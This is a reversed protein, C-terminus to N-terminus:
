MQYLAGLMRNRVDANAPNVADGGPRVNVPNAPLREVHFDYFLANPVGQRRYWGLENKPSPHSCDWNPNDVADWFHGKWVLGGEGQMTRWGSAASWRQAHADMMYVLDTTRPPQSASIRLKGPYLSVLFKTGWPVGANKPQYDTIFSGTGLGRPMVFRYSVYDDTGWVDPTLDFPCHWVRSVKFADGDNRLEPVKTKDLYPRLMKDWGLRGENQNNKHFWTARDRVPVHGKWEAAYNAAAMGIQRLNSLCQVNQAAARAKNLAPLLISILVAIIGIVVLLEVLTFGHPPRAAHRATTSM